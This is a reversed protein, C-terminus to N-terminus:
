ANPWDAYGSNLCAKPARHVTVELRNGKKKALSTVDFERVCYFGITTDASALLTGNLRIDASYGVGDFRLVHRLGKPADFRTTYVWPTEFQGRDISKYRMQDRVDQGFVGAEDLAGAVTCPVEVKYSKSDGERHLQWNTLPQAAAGLTLSLSLLIFFLRKMM